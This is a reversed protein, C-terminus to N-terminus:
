FPTTLMIVPLDLFHAIRVFRFWSTGPFDILKWYKRIGEGKKGKKKRAGM